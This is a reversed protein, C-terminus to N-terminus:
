LKKLKRLEWYYHEQLARKGRGMAKSRYELAAATQDVKGVLFPQIRKLFIEAKGHATCWGWRIRRGKMKPQYPKEYYGGYEEMLKEVVPPRSIGSQAVIVHLAYYTKGNSGKTTKITICGDSDIVGAAWADILRRGM